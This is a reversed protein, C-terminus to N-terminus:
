GDFRGGDFIQSRNFLCMFHPKFLPKRLRFSSEADSKRAFNATRMICACCVFLFCACSQEAGHAAGSKTEGSKGNSRSSKLGFWKM